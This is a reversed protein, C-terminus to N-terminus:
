DVIDIMGNQLEKLSGCVLLTEVQNKFTLRVLDTLRNYGLLKASHRILDDMLIARHNKIVEFIAAEYEGNCILKLQSTLGRRKRVNLTEAKLSWLFEDDIRIENQFEAYLVANKISEKVRNGARSLGWLKRLRKTLEDLHIPSEINVIHIVAEAIQSIHANPLDETIEFPLSECVHYDTNEEVSQPEESYEEIELLEPDHSMEKPVNDIADKVAKLLRDQAVKRQKFWDTSWVRYVKWGKGELIAQRLRDRERAMASSHYSAGDCEIALLYNGPNNPAVLALDMRYAASGVQKRCDHGHAKLFTYVSEEFPSESDMQIDDTEDLIGTEAYKMYVKLFRLGKPRSADSVDFNLDKALFNAFVVSRDRARTTLVNLRREGGEQNVPGFNLTLKHDKDFGLGISIFIVDREDGQITELNKVFFSEEKDKTFFAEMEPRDNRLIEVEEIIANQQRNNLAAVGLTKTPYLEFHEFVAKALEKAEDRNISSKGRDYVTNPLHRMHLGYYSDKDVASPFVLLKNDYSEQNSVAILSHHRSRYHWRLPKEQLRGNAMNLLSEMDEAGAIAALDDDPDEEVDEVIREFFSTPPLQKSDGMVVLQKSRAIAGISGEPRIQSAEDFIVVDFQMAGPSLFQAVSIPSMMFIPKIEQVLSGTMELLRRIAMHRRKRNFEGLLIGSQSGSVGQSIDPRQRYLQEILRYQNLKIVKQDLQRFEKITNEHIDFNFAKLHKNKHVAYELASFSLQYNFLDTLNDTTLEENEELIDALSRAFSDKVSLFRQMFESWSVLTELNDQWDEFRFRLTEFSVSQWSVHDFVKASEIKLFGNLKDYSSEFKAQHDKIGAISVKLIGHKISECIAELTKESLVGENLLGRIKHALM